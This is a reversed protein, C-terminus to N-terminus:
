IESDGAEATAGPALGPADDIVVIDNQLGPESSISIVDTNAVTATVGPPNSTCTMAPASATGVVIGSGSRGIFMVEFSTLIRVELIKGSAAYDCTVTARASSALALAVLLAAGAAAWFARNLANTM